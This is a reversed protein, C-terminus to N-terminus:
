KVTQLLATAIQIKQHRFPQSVTFPLHEAVIIEDGLARHRLIREKETWQFLKASKISETGFDFLITVGEVVFKKKGGLAQAQSTPRAPMRSVVPTMTEGTPRWPTDGMPRSPRRRGTGTPVGESKASLLSVMMEQIETRLGAMKADLTEAIKSELSDAIRAEIAQVSEVDKIEESKSSHTSM